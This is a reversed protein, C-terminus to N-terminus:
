MNSYLQHVSEYNVWSKDFHELAKILEGKIIGISIVSTEDCAKNYINRLSNQICKFDNCLKNGAELIEPTFEYKKGNM